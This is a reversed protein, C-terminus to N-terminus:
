WPRPLPLVSPAFLPPATSLPTTTGPLSTSPHSPTTHPTKLLTSKNTILFCASSDKHRTTAENALNVIAHTNNLRSM